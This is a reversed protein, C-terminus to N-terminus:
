VGDICLVELDVFIAEWEVYIYGIRSLRCILDQAQDERPKGPTCAPRAFEAPWSEAERDNLNTAVTGPGQEIPASPPSSPLAGSGDTRSRLRALAHLRGTSLPAAQHGAGRVALGRTGPECAEKGNGVARARSDIGGLLSEGCGSVGDCAGPRAGPDLQDFVAEPCRAAAPLLSTRSSRM